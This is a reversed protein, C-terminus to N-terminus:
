AGWACCSFSNSNVTAGGPMIPRSVATATTSSSTRLSVIEGSSSTRRREVLGARMRRLGPPSRASPETASTVTM